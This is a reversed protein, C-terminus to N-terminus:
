PLPQDLKKDDATLADTLAKKGSARREQLPEGSLKQKEREKM